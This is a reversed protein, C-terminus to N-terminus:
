KVGKESISRGPAPPATVEAAPAAGTRRGATYTRTGERAAAEPQGPPEVAKGKPRPNQGGKVVIGGIPSGASRAADSDGTAPETQAPETTQHGAATAAAPALLLAPLLFAIRHIHM